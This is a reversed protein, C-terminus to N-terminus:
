EILLTHDKNYSSDVETNKSYTPIIGYLIIHFNLINLDDM